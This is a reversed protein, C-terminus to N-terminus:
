SLDIGRSFGVMIQMGTPTGTITWSARLSANVTTVSPLKIWQSGLTTASAFTALDTWTSGADSSQQVKVTISPSTGGTVDVVHLQAAGGFTSAAANVDELGNGTATLVTQPSALMVGDGIWGRASLEADFDVTDNLKWKVSKDTISSRQLTVPSLPTLGETAYWFNLPATRGAWQGLLYGLKGRRMTSKGSVKATGDIMGTLTNKYLSGATSGDVKDIKQSHDGDTMQRTFVYGEIGFHVNRGLFVDAPAELDLAM